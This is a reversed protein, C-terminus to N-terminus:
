APPEKDGHVIRLITVTHGMREFEEVQARTYTPKNLMRAVIPTLSNSGFVNGTTETYTEDNDWTTFVLPALTPLAQLREELKGLRSNISM